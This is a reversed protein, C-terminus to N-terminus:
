FRVSAVFGGYNFDRGGAHRILTSTSGHVFSLTVGIHASATWEARLFSLAAVFSPGTGNGPLLPVGPVGYVADNKSIRFVADSGARLRLSRSADISVNPQIDATNGPYYVPADTFYGLNPYIVDFTDLHDDRRRDASAYGFSVGMRPTFRVQPHWGFDGAFGFARIGNSGFSGYQRSAQVAYDWQVTTASLRAGITRRRDSATGEQYRASARDRSLFFFSAVPAQSAPTLPMRLWAGMFKEAPNRRDDFAGRQNLVPRGYFATLSGRGLKSELHAMDFALRLNAAERTSILRNGGADLQQRGIRLTTEHPLSLDIFAQAVDPRSRDFSREAPKRGSDAAASLEVFARLSDSVHLDAHVLGRHGIATYAEDSPRLDFDPADLSEIKLRYEGGVSFRPPKVPTDDGAHARSALAPILFVALAGVAARGLRSVRGRRRQEASLRPM